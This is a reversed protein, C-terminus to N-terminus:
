IGDEQMHSSSGTARLLFAPPYTTCIFGAFLWPGFEETLMFFPLIFYMLDRPMLYSLLGVPWSLIPALIESYGYIFHHAVSVTEGLTLPASMAAVYFAPCVIVLLFLFWLARM